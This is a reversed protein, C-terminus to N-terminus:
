AQCDQIQAPFKAVKSFRYEVSAVAYGKLAMAAIPCPFKSGAWWAGGHIHVVLPLPKDALKEPVYIDLKQAEDGGEIYAIDKEMRIGAPLQFPKPAPKPTEAFLSVA